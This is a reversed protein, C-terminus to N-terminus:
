NATPAPAPDAAAAVVTLGDMNEFAAQLGWGGFTDSVAIWLENSGKELPLYVQDFFGITGLYRYDRSRYGNNGVYLLRDNLFVRVRDSYGFALGKSQARESIMVVRAFVTNTEPTLTHLKSLNALGTSETALPQWSLGNKRSPALAAADGLTKEDFPSSVNWNLVSGPLGTRKREAAAALMPQDEVRFRFNSFHAPAFAAVTLGVKGAVPTRKLEDVFLAPTELDSIYIEAQGGSVVIRVPIWTHFEYEVPAGYGDGHYLQWGTQGNFVPTYQNADPNGSQHSRMYFQERNDPDVVRWTAGIFGREPGFAVDYEIVGNLLKSDEILAMGGDLFLATRGLHEEIRSEKADIQWRPSDFLVVDSAALTAACAMLVVGVVLNRM